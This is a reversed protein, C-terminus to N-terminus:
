APQGGPLLVTLLVAVVAAAAGVYGLTMAWARRRGALTVVGVVLAVLAPIAMQQAKATDVDAEPSSELHFGVGLALLLVIVGTCFALLGLFVIPTESRAMPTEYQAM